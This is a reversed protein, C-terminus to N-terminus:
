RLTPLISEFKRRPLLVQVDADSVMLDQWAVCVFVLILFVHVCANCAKWPTASRSTQLLPMGNNTAITSCKQSVKEMCVHGSNWSASSRTPRLIWWMKGFTWSMTREMGSLSPHTTSMDVLQSSAYMYELAFPSDMLSNSTPQLDNSHVYSLSVVKFVYELTSQADCSAAANTACVSMNKLTRYETLTHLLEDKKDQSMDQYKPDDRALEQIQQLSLKEGHTCGAM